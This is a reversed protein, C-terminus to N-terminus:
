PTQNLDLARRARLVRAPSVERRPAAIIAPYGVTRPIVEGPRVARPPQQALVLSIRRQAPLDPALDGVARGVRDRQSRAGHCKIDVTVVKQHM